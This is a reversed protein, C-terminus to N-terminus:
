DSTFRSRGSCLRSIKESLRVNGLAFDPASLSQSTSTSFCTRLPSLTLPLSFIVSWPLFREKRSWYCVCCYHGDTYSIDGATEALPSFPCADQWSERFYTLYNQCSLKVITCNRSFSNWTNAELNSWFKSSWWNYKM